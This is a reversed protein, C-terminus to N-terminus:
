LWKEIPFKRTFPNGFRVGELATGDRFDEIFVVPVQNLRATAWTQADYEARWQM